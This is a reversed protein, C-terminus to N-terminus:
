HTMRGLVQLVSVPKTDTGPVMGQILQTIETTIARFHPTKIALTNAMGAGNSSGWAAVRSLDCQPYSKLKAMIDNVFAVDDAGNGQMAMNWGKNYGEPYVGVIKGQNILPKLRNTWMEPKGGKGHFGFVVPLPASQGQPVQVLVKRNVKQGNVTQLVWPRSALPSSARSM